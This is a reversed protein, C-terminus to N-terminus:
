GPRDADVAVFQDLELHVAGLAGGDGAQALAPGRAAAGAPARPPGRLRALSRDYAGAPPRM